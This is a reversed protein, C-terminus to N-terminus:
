EPQMEGKFLDANWVCVCVIICQWVKVRVLVDLSEISNSFYRMRRDSVVRDKWRWWRYLLGFWSIMMGRLGPQCINM